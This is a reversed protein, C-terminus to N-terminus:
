GAPVGAAGAIAQGVQEVYLVIRPGWRSAIDDDMAIVNGNKVASMEGWGPRAAVSEPTVGCYKACALFILDPDADVIFEASLQPYPNGDGVADAINVLGATSYVLGIFSDSTVSWYGNPDLEHYYTMPEALAPLGDVVAALDTQMQMVLEAAEAIQGTVAGLQEIQAYVDEFTTPAMGEWHAIDLTDFQALLDANTGDTVVLDPELGAIAEVNPEFANIGQMKAAAEEPFNSFDDVALVQDGAGIAFLTETASPSLSVIRSPVDDGGPVTTASTTPVSTAPTTATTAPPATSNTPEAPAVTTESSAADDDDGCAAGVLALGALVGSLIRSRMIEEVQSSLHTVPRSPRRVARAELTQNDRVFRDVPSTRILDPVV